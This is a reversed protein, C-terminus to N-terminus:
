GNWDASHSERLTIAIMQMRPYAALVKDGLNCSIATTRSGLPLTMTGVRTEGSIDTVDATVQFNYFRRTALAEEPLVLPLEVEFRGEGDTITEETLLEESAGHDSARWWLAAKREVRYVVRAGQVPVGAYSMARGEVYLTDGNHYPSNVKPIEVKFSPRKYEEVKIITSAEEVKVTFSGSM